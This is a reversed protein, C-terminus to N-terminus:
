IWSQIPNEKKRKKKKKRKKSRVYRREKLGQVHIHFIPCSEQRKPKQKIYKGELGVDCYKRM